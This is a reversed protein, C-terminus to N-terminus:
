SEEEPYYLQCFWEMVKLERKSLKQVIEEMWNDEPFYNVTM